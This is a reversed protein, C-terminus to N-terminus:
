GRGLHKREGSDKLAARIDVETVSPPLWEPFPPHAPPSGAPVMSPIHSRIAADALLYGHNQLIASEIDSFGDLDTRIGAIVSEALPKSYGGTQDYSDRAGGVSWYTGSLQGSIFNSVLWRTRLAHSQRDQVGVYRPLRWLLGADPEAHFLAGGDSVLVVAHDKWVPELGLNDYVGGDSLRLGSVCVDRDPGPSARGGTLVGPDLRIPLPNFVPPFCASAAVARALDWDPPPVAYGAQYDGVRVRESVWNVGWSLDTACLVFRPSVPLAGLHIPGLFERYREAVAEGTALQVLNMAAAATRIDHSTFEELPAAVVRRWEASTMAAIPTPSDKIVKALHAAMLSGGSVSSVTTVKSLVGLEHLRQLAGLHFLAARFGGGSL